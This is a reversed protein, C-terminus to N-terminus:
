GHDRKRGREWKERKGKIAEGKEEVDKEKERTSEQM